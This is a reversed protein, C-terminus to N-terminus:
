FKLGLSRTNWLNQNIELQTVCGRMVCGKRKKTLPREKNRQFPRIKPDFERSSRNNDASMSNDANIKTVVSINVDAKLGKFYGLDVFLRSYFLGLPVMTLNSRAIIIM